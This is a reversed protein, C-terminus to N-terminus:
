CTGCRGTTTRTTTGFKCWLHPGWLYNEIIRKLDRQLDGIHVLWALWSKDSAQTRPSEQFEKPYKMGSAIMGLMTDIVDRGQFIEGGIQKYDFGAPVPIGMRNKEVMEKTDKLFNRSHVPSWPRDESGMIFFYRKNGWRRFNIGIAKMVENLLLAIVAVSKVLSIGKLHLGKPAHPIILLQQPLLYTENETGKDLIWYKVLFSKPDRIEVLRNVANEIIKLRQIGKHETWNIEDAIEYDYTKEGTMTRVETKNTVYQEFLMEEEYVIEAASFGDILSPFYMRKLISDLGRVYYDQFIVGNLMDVAEKNRKMVKNDPDDITTDFGCSVVFAHTGDVGSSVPGFEDALQRYLKIQKPTEPTKGEAVTGLSSITNIVKLLAQGTSVTEEVIYIPLRSTAISELAEQETVGSHRAVEKLYEAFTKSVEVNVKKEEPKKLNVV